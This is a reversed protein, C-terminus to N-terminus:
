NNKRLHTAREQQDALQQWERGMDLLIEASRRSFDNRCTQFL